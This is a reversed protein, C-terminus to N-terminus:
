WGDFDWDDDLSVGGNLELGLILELLCEIANGELLLRAYVVVLHFRGTFLCDRQIM